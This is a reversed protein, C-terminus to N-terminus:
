RSFFILVNLCNEYREKREGEVEYYHTPWPHQLKPKCENPNTSSIELKHPYVAESQVVCHSGANHICDIHNGHVVMPNECFESHAHNHDSNDLSGKLSIPVKIFEEEYKDKEIPTIEKPQSSTKEETQSPNTNDVQKQKKRLRSTRIRPKPKEPLDKLSTVSKTSEKFLKCHDEWRSESNVDIGIVDKHVSQLHNKLSTIYTFKKKCIDCLYKDNIEKIHVQAHQKLNSRSAFAKDCTKCAYPKEGTHIRKHRIL